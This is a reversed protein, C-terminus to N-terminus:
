DKSVMTGLDSTLGSVEKEDDCDYAEDSNSDDRGDPHLVLIPEEDRFRAELRAQSMRKIGTTAGGQGRGYVEFLNDWSSMSSTDSCENSTADGGSNTAAGVSDSYSPAGKPPKTVSINTAKKKEQKPASSGNAKDARNPYDMVEYSSDSELHSQPQGAQHSM